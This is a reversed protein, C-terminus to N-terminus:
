PAHALREIEDEMEVRMKEIEHAGVPRPDIRQEERDDERFGSEDDRREQGAVRQEKRRAREARGARQVCREGDREKRSRRERSVGDVVGDSPDDAWAYEM